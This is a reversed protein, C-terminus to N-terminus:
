IDFNFEDWFRVWAEHPCPGADERRFRFLWGASLNTGLINRSQLLIALGFRGRQQLLIWRVRRQHCMVCGRPRRTWADLCNSVFCYGMQCLADNSCVVYGQGADGLLPAINAAQVPFSSAPIVSRFIQRMESLGKDAPQNERPENM